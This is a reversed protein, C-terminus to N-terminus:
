PMIVALTFPQIDRGDILIDGNMDGHAIDCLPFQAAYGAPNVLALVFPEVDDLNVGSSCDMDGSSSPPAFHVVLKPRTSEISNERTNFRKATGGDAVEEGILMWGNNTAANDVWAQVDAVMRPTTGWTTTLDQGDVQRTDSPVPDFDGGINTWFTGPKIRHIWTSDGNVSNAGCGEPDPEPQGPCTANTTGENWPSLCRHASVPGATIAKSCYLTFYVETITSGAPISSLDFQIVPRRLNITLSEATKGVFMFRGAGNSKAGTASKQLTNDKVSTLTVMDALAYGVLCPFLLVVSGILKRPV